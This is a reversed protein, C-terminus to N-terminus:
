EVEVFNPPRARFANTGPRTPVSTSATAAPLGLAANMLAPNAIQTIVLKPPRSVVGEFPTLSTTDTLAPGTQIAGSQSAISPTGEFWSFSVSFQVVWRILAIPFVKGPQDSFVLLTTFNTLYDISTLFQRHGSPALLWESAATSPGDAMKNNFTDGAGTARQKSMVPWNPNILTGGNDGTHGDLFQNGSIHKAWEVTTMGENTFRGMFVRTDRVPNAFQMFELNCRSREAADRVKATVAGGITVVSGGLDGFGARISRPNDLPTAGTPMRCNFVAGAGTLTIKASSPNITAM